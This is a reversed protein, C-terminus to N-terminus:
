AVFPEYVFNGHIECGLKQYIRIRRFAQGVLKKITVDVFDIVVPKKKGEFERFLRGVSQEVDAQPSILFLTDLKPIDLGEKAKQTTALILPKSEVEKRAKRSLSGVYFGIDQERVKHKKVLIDAIMELSIKRESISISNRGAFHAANIKAAITVNRGVHSALYSLMKARAQIRSLWPKSFQSEDVPTQLPVFYVDSALNESELRHIVPGINQVILPWMGDSRRDTATLGLRWKAPFRWIAKQWSDAGYRHVEDLVLMGFSRYFKEPYERKSNCISQVSSIVVDYDHGFSIQDKRTIGLRVNSKLTDKFANIWQDQLFEQHVMVCSSVGLELQAVSGMVTKGKGCGACLIGGAFPHESNKFHSVVAEVAEAQGERPVFRYDGSDFPVGEVLDTNLISDLYEAASRPFRVIGLDEDIEYLSHNGEGYPLAITYRRMLESLFEEPTDGLSLSVYSGIAASM